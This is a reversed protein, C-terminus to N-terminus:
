QNEDRHTSQLQKIKRRQHYIVAILMITVVPWVIVFIWVNLAEYSIGIKGAIAYLLIVCQEFIYLM